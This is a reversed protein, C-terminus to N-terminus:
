RRERTVSDGCSARRDPVPDDGDAGTELWTLDRGPKRLLGAPGYAVDELM